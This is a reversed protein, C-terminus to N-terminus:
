SGPGQVWMGHVKDQALGLVRAVGDRAFHPKQSGTWLATRTRTSSRHKPQAPARDDSTVDALLGDLILIARGVNALPKISWGEAV